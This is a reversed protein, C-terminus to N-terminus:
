AAPQAAADDESRTERAIRLASRGSPLVVAFGFVVIMLAGGIVLLAQVSIVDALPGFVTMGIPTALAMVIGVYGFVRGQMEPATTEQLLTTFPGSFLPVLLGIGFMFAYFVPLAPALGCGITFIGFGVCSIV